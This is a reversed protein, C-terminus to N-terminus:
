AAEQTPSTDDPPTSRAASAAIPFPWAPLAGNSGTTAPQQEGTPGDAPTPNGAGEEPETGNIRDNGHDNADDDGQADADEQAEDSTDGEEDEDEEHDVAYARAAPVERDTLIEPLWASKALRLEAAIKPSVASAVVEAIRAKSVHDFYSARTPTWYRTMDLNLAGALANIAHPKEEGAIGDILSGTCFALLDLLTIGPDQELLWPLLDAYRTPRERGWRERQAEIRSWATGAPLDDAAELLRDRNSMGNLDVPSRDASYGYRGAFAFPILRHLTAALAVSPQAILEAHIAATRHATLRQCLKASHIPKEKPARQTATASTDEAEPTGTVTAGAADLAASNERRVLGREIVLEGQPSVMVFAGAEAMQQPDWTLLSSELAALAASVPRMEAELREAEDDANEDDESLADFQQALADLQQTLADM